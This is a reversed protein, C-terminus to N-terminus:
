LSIIIDLDSCEREYPVAPFTAIVLVPVTRVIFIRECEIPRDSGIRDVCHMICYFVICYAIAARGEQLRLTLCARRSYSSGVPYGEAHDDCAQRSYCM